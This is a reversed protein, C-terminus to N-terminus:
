INVPAERKKLAEEEEMCSYVLGLCPSAIWLVIRGDLVLWGTTERLILFFFFFFSFFFLIKQVTM